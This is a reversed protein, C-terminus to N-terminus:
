HYKAANQGTKAELNTPNELTLAEAYDRGGEM